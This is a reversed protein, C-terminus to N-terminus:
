IMGRGRTFDPLVPGDLCAWLHMAITSHNVHLSKKPLVQYAEVEEGLFENKIALLEKWQPLRHRHSVSVHMWRKGDLEVSQSIIVRLDKKELVLASTDMYRGTWGDPVDISIQRTTDFRADVEHLPAKM